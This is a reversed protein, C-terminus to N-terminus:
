QLLINLGKKWSIENENVNFEMMKHLPMNLFRDNPILNVDLCIKKLSNLFDDEYISQVNISEGLRFYVYCIIGLVGTEFSLNLLRHPAIEMIREDIDRLVEDINGEVFKNKILYLIGWGIGCLGGSMYINVESHIDSYIDELLEGAFDEFLSEQTFRAYHFFFIILGMKGDFLGIKRLKCSHFIHYLAIKRLQRCVQEM